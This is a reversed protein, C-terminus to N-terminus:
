YSMGIINWSICHVLFKRTRSTVFNASLPETSTFTCAAPAQKIARTFSSFQRKCIDQWSMENKHYELSMLHTVIEMGDNLSGDSKIYIREEDLTNGEALILDANESYKGAGDIELEVGLLDTATAM